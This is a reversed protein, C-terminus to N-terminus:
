QMLESLFEETVSLERIVHLPDKFGHGEGEMVELRVAGGAANVHERLQLSHSLPVSRDKDGHFVLVPTGAMSEARSLPSREWLVADDPGGAGILRPMYHSEFPDDGRMMDVLDVVPYSVVAGAAIGPALGIANLVSLGGASAGMLVTREPRYGFARQVQRAVAVTDIADDIGWRGELSCQFARGHGTSGRHDVVALSWGRSLWHAFKARFTVQWQDVPGGHVWVIVGWNPNRARYLRYPVTVEGDVAEHLSPEVLEAAIAEDFWEDAAPRVVIRRTSGSVSPSSVDYAVLQQPTRAGTRLAALTDGHWSLCGFVGRDVHTRVTSVRDYIWLGGFGNENRAYAIRTGTADFCWTRQGPGWTPGAHECDDDIVVDADVIADASVHVNATGGEDSIWGFSRGDISFRPQQVAVEERATDPHIASQTWPMHPRVWTHCRGSMGATADIAFGESRHVLVPEGGALDCKWLECWDAVAYLATNTADIAPTSWSRGPDFSLVRTRVPLDDDISVEVIGETPTVVFVRRGDGGWCHVGGSLGRGTAPMPDVLLDIRRDTEDLSWMSLRHFSGNLGRESLVGSVWRGGPRVHSDTVERGPLCLHVPLPPM